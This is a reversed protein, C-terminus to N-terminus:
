SIKAAGPVHEPKPERKLGVYLETQDLRVKLLALEKAITSPIQNSDKLQVTREELEKQNKDIRLFENAVDLFQDKFAQHCIQSLRDYDPKRLVRRNELWQGLRMLWNM